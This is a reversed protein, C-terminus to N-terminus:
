QQDEKYHIYRILSRRMQDSPTSNIRWTYTSSYDLIRKGFSFHGIYFLVKQRLNKRNSLNNQRLVKLIRETESSFDSLYCDIPKTINLISTGKGHGSMQQSFQPMRYSAESVSQFLIIWVITFLLILRCSQITKHM